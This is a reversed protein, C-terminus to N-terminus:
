SYISSDLMGSHGSSPREATALAYAACIEVVTLAEDVDIFTNRNAIIHFIAVAYNRNALLQGFDHVVGVKM